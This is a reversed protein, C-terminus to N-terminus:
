FISYIIDQKFQSCTTCFKEWMKQLNTINIINNLIDNNVNEKIIRTTIEIAM